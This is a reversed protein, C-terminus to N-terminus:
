RMLALSALIWTIKPTKREDESDVTRRRGLEGLSHHSLSCLSMASVCRTFADKGGSAITSEQEAVLVGATCSVCARGATLQSWGDAHGCVEPGPALDLKSSRM